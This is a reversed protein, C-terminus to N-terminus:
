DQVSIYHTTRPKGDIQFRDVAKELVRDSKTVRQHQRLHDLWSAVRVDRGVLTKRLSTSCSRWHHSLVSMGRENM